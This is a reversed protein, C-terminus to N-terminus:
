DLNFRVKKNTKVGSKAGGRQSQSQSQSGGAQCKSNRLKDLLTSLYWLFLAVSTVWVETLSVFWIITGILTM